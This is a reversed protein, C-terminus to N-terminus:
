RVGDTSSFTPHRRRPRLATTTRQCDGDPRSLCRRSSPIRRHRGTAIDPPAGGLGLEFARKTGLQTVEVHTTTESSTSHKESSRTENAHAASVSTSWAMLGAGFFLAGKSSAASSWSSGVTEDIQRMTAHRMTTEVDSDVFRYSPGRPNKFPSRGPHLQGVTGPAIDAGLAHLHVCQMLENREVLDSVSLDPQQPLLDLKLKDMARDLHRAAGGAKFDSPLKLDHLELLEARASAVAKEEAAASLAQVSAETSAANDIFPQLSDQLATLETIGMLAAELRPTPTTGVGTHAGATSPSRGMDALSQKVVAREVPTIGERELVKFTEPHDDPHLPICQLANPNTVGDASLAEAIETVLSAKVGTQSHLKQELSRHITKEAPTNIAPAFAVEMALTVEGVTSATVAKHPFNSLTRQWSHLEEKKTVGEKDKINVTFTADRKEMIKRANSDQFVILNQRDSRLETAWELETWCNPSERWSSTIIFAMVEAHRMAQRYYERWFVNLTRTSDGVLRYSGPMKPLHESDVYTGGVTAALEKIKDFGFGTDSARAGFSLLRKFEGPDYGDDGQEIQQIDRFYVAADENTKFRLLPDLGADTAGGLEIATREIVEPEYGLLQKAADPRHHATDGLAKKLCGHLTKENADM